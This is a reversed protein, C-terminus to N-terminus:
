EKFLFFVFFWVALFALLGIGLAIAADIQHLVAAVRQQIGMAVICMGAIMVILSVVMTEGLHNLFYSLGTIKEFLAVVGGEPRCIMIIQLVVAVITLVSAVM